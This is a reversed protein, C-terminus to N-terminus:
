VVIPLKRLWLIIDERLTHARLSSMLKSFWCQLEASQSASQSVSHIFFKPVWPVWPVRASSCMLCDFPVQCEFCKFLVDVSWCEPCKPVRASLPSKPVRASWVSPCKSVQSVRVGSPCKLVRVSFASLRKPVRASSPCKPVGASSCKPLRPVKNLLSKSM